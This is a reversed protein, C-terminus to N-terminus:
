EGTKESMHGACWDGAAMEAEQLGVVRFQEKRAAFRM